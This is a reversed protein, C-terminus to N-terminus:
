TLYRDFLGVFCIWNFSRHCVSVDIRKLSFPRKMVNTITVNIRMLVIFLYTIKNDFFYSYLYTLISEDSDGM